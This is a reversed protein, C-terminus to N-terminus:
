LSLLWNQIESKHQSANLGNLHNGFLVSAQRRLETPTVSFMQKFRSSFHSHDNFGWDTAIDTIKGSYGKELLRYCKELRRRQIYSVLGGEEEFLRYIASRSLNSENALSKVSLNDSSLNAEILALVRQKKQQQKGQYCGSIQRQAITLYDLLLELNSDVVRNALAASMNPLKRWLLQIQEAILQALSHQAPIVMSTLEARKGGYSQYVSRPIVICLVDSTLDRTKLPYRLDLVAIDGPNVAIGKGASFGSFGGKLYLQVVIHDPDYQESWYRDREFTQESFHSQSIVCHDALYVTAGASFSQREDATLQADFLPAMNQQWHWYAEESELGQTAFVASPLVADHDPYM